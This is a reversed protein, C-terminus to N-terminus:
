VIAIKERTLDAKVALSLNSRLQAWGQHQDTWARLQFTVANATFNSVYVQPSPEKVIGPQTAAATKLLEIVRQADVGEAVNVSIELVRLVDSFTWNTVQSSILSGNPLIVESGDPTRIVSARIGIRRVEGIIGGVEITDGIKIPREFLLILGSVFNNIVNQLGFGIGVSFAGALITIKALDIGLAGLAIFFGLLLIAYHLMTSIAYPVGPALHFHDYLDEELLFRIFRSVLFSAWVAIVFALIRDLSISLSGIAVTANLVAKTAERLPALLGFFNLSISLWFLFGVLGLGRFIRRQLLPRHLSVFRLTGLPRVQLAIIIFGEVIRLAVYVMAAVFVSRLFIMGLLNSLQIYGLINALFAAPLLLLGIKAISRINRWLRGHTEAAEPPLHWRKLLWILFCSGGVLQILFLLRNSDPLSATVLRLEGLLALVIIAYLIPYSNPLLLRRLILLMPILTIVGVIGLLLRPAQPCISLLILLSLVLATSVPLDVIPFARQLDPKEERVGQLRHRMLRLTAALLGILFPQVLFAFPFRKVFAISARLQASFSAGSQEKWESGLSIKGSWIPPGNRVLLSEFARTQTQKITSLTARVRAQQESLDGQITLLQNLVSETRERTGSVSNIIHQFSDQVSHPVKSQQASQLTLQWIENFQDLRSHAKALSAAHDALGRDLASLHDDLNQWISELQYLVDLFPTAALVKNDDGIRNDIEIRLKSLSRALDAVSSEDRTLGAGIEQLSAITSREEVPVAILPIPTATPASRAPSASPQQSLALRASSLFILVPLLVFTSPRQM